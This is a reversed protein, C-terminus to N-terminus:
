AYARRNHLAIAYIIGGVIGIFFLFAFNILTMAVVRDAAVGLASFLVVAANDRLGLGGISIPLITISGIIPVFILYHIINLKIGLSLGVFYFVASYSGQLIVSLLVAKLLVGKQLRFSHCYSHFKGFYDKLLKFVMIKNILRFIRRSFTIGLVCILIVAFLAMFLFLSTDYTLGYFYGWIFGLFSVLALGVFGLVRDLFVTALISSSDKTHIALDTTRVIDGGISSPLSVNFFLGGCYSIFIRGLPLDQKITKLLMNWRALGLSMVFIFLLVAYLFYLPEATRM